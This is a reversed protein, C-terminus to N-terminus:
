GSAKLILILIGVLTPVSIAVIVVAREKWSLQETMLGGAQPHNTGWADPAVTWHSTGAMVFLIIQGGLSGFSSRTAVLPFRFDRMSGGALRLFQKRRRIVPDFLAATQQSANQDNNARLQGLVIDAIRDHKPFALPM